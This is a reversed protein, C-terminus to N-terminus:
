IYCNGEKVLRDYSGIKKIEPTIVTANPSFDVFIIALLTVVILVSIVITKM